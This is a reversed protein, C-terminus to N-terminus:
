GRRIKANRRIITYGSSTLHPYCLAPRLVSLSVGSLFRAQQGPIHGYVEHQIFLDPAFPISKPAMPSIWFSPLTDILRRTSLGTRPAALTKSSTSLVRLKGCTM